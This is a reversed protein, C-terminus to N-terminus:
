ASHVLEAADAPVGDKAAAGLDNLVNRGEHNGVAIRGFDAADVLHAEFASAEAGFLDAGKAFGIPKEAPGIEVDLLGAFCDSCFERRVLM